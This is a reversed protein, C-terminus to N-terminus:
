LKKKDAFLLYLAALLLIPDRSINILEFIAEDQLLLYYNKVINFSIERGYALM